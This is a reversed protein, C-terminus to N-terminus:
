MYILKGSYRLYSVAHKKFDVHPFDFKEWCRQVNQM